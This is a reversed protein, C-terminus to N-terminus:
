ISPARFCPQRAPNYASTLPWSYIASGPTAASAQGLALAVALGVFLTIRKM